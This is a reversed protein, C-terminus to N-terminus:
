RRSAWDDGSPGDDSRDDSRLSRARHHRVSTRLRDLDSGARVCTEGTLSQMGASGTVRPAGARVVPHGVLAEVLPSWLAPLRAACDELLPPAAHHRVDRSDVMFAWRHRGEGPPLALGTALDFEGQAADQRTVILPYGRAIWSQLVELPAPGGTRPGAAATGVPRARGPARLWVLDHRQPEGRLMRDTM